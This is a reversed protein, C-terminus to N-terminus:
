DLICWVLRQKQTCRPCKWVRPLRLLKSRTIKSPQLALVVKYFVLSTHPPGIRTTDLPPYPCPPCLAKGKRGESTQGLSTLILQRCQEVAATIYFSPIDDIKCNSYDNQKSVLFPDLVNPRHTDNDKFLMEVTWDGLTPQLM